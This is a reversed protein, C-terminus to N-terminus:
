RKGGPPNPVTRAFSPPGRAPVWGNSLNKQFGEGGVEISPNGPPSFANPSGCNPKSFFKEIPQTGAM